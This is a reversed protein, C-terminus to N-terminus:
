GSVIYDEVTQAAQEKYSHRIDESEDYISVHNKRALVREKERKDKLYQPELNSFLNGYKEDDELMNPDFKMFEAPDPLEDQM